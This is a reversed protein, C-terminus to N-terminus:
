VFLVEPTLDLGFTDKVRGRVQACLAAVDGGTAHGDTNVIVLPQSPWLSAGGVTLPKCGARDILWAASLKRRGDPATHAPIEMGSLRCADRWEEDTVVPNKFFSGASGTVSPFPLKADRVATVARRVDAPTIAELEQTTPHESVGLAESLGKYALSPRGDRSVKLTVGIIVTYPGFRGSKFVSTRYGYDLESPTLAETRGTEIDFTFVRDIVDAMEVGYAGANQVAAGGVTGPIGSLNELGWLGHSAARACVDDLVAGAGCVLTATGDPNDIVSCSTDTNRLVTGDYHGNAFLLNSGGGLCLMRRPKWGDAALAMLDQPSDYEVLCGCGAHIGFTTLRTIDANTTIKLM